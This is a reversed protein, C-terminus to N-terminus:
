ENKLKNKINQICVFPSSAGGEFEEIIDLLKKRLMEIESHKPESEFVAGCNMEKCITPTESNFLYEDLYDESNEFRQKKSDEM